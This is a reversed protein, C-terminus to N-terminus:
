RTELTKSDFLGSGNGYAALGDMSFAGWQLQVRRDVAAECSREWKGINFLHLLGDVGGHRRKSFPSYKTRTSSVPELSVAFCCGTLSSVAIGRTTRRGISHSGDGKICM